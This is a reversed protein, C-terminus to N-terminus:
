CMKIPLAETKKLPETCSELKSVSIREQKAMAEIQLIDKTPPLSWWQSLSVHKPWVRAIWPM